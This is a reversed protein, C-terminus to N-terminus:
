PTAARFFQQPASNSVPIRVPGNSVAVVDTVDIWNTTPVNPASLLRYHNGAEAFVVVSLAGTSSIIRLSPAPTGGALEFAGADSAGGQPRIVGRADTLPVGSTGPPIVNLAPSGSLLAMTHVSSGNLAPPGLFLNVDSASGTATVAFSDDSCFNYGLDALTGSVNTSGFGSDLLTAFLSVDAQQNFVDTAYTRGAPMGTGAMLTNNAFTCHSILAAGSTFYVAGRTWGGAGNPTGGNGAMNTTWSITCNVFVHNTAVSYIAGGYANGGSATQSLYQGGNGGRAFHGTFSCNTLYIGRAPALAACAAGQGIGGPTTSGDFARGGNGGLAKNWEFRCATASFNGESMIAGGMGFGGPIAFSVANNGTDGGVAENGIFVCREIQLEFENHIAGGYAAGASGAAVRNSIFACDAILVQGTTWIAGAEVRGSQANIPNLAYATNNSFTCGIVTGTTGVSWFMTAGFAGGNQDRGSGGIATNRTFFCNTFLATGASIYAVGGQGANGWTSPSSGSSLGNGGTASNQDFVCDTATFTGNDSQFVVGGSNGRAPASVSFVADPGRAINNRFVCNRAAIKGGRNWFVAGINTSFSDAFTCNLLTLNVNSNVIFLRNGNQGRISAHSSAGEIILDHTVSLQSPATIVGDCGVIIHSYNAVASSFEAGTCNTLVYQARLSTTAALLLM